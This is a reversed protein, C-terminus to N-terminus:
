QFGTKEDIRRIHPPRAQNESPRARVSSASAPRLSSSGIRVSIRKNSALQAAQLVPAVGGEDGCVGGAGGAADPSCPPVRACIRAM